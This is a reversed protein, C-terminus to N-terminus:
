NLGKSQSQKDWGCGKAKIKGNEANRAESVAWTLWFLLQGLSGPLSSLPLPHRCQNKSFPSSKALHQVLVSINWAPLFLMFFAWLLQLVLHKPVVPECWPRTYISYLICILTFASAQVKSSKVHWALSNQYHWFLQCRQCFLVGHDDGTAMFPSFQAWLLPWPGTLFPSVHISWSCETRSLAQSLHSWTGPLVKRPVM